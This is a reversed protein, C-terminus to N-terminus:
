EIREEILWRRLCVKAVITKGEVIIGGLQQSVPNYWPCFSSCAMEVATQVADEVKYLEIFMKDFQRHM